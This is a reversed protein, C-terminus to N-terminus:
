VRIEELKELAKRSPSVDGKEWRSVAWVHMGLLKYSMDVQSMGLRGRLKKIRTPTWKCRLCAKSGNRRFDCRSCLQPKPAKKQKKFNIGYMRGLKHVWQRELKLARAAEAQTKSKGLRRLAQVTKRREPSMM